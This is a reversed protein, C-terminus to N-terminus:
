EQWGTADAGAARLPQGSTPTTGDVVVRTGISAFDYMWKADAVQMNICGHSGPIGQQVYIPHDGWAYSPVGHLAEGGNYYSIWPTAPQSYGEGNMTQSTYKLYVYFTGVDSLRSGDATPQGSAINFTAVVTTGQYATATQNTLDVHVWKDGNAADFNHPVEVEKEDYPTDKVPVTADTSQNQEIATAIKEPADGVGTVEVGDQGLTKDAGIQVGGESKPTIFIERTVKPVTLAKIVSEQSVYKTIAERDVTLSTAGTELDTSPKLFTAIQETPITVSKDIGNDVTLALGLRANAETVTNQASASDVPNKATELKVEVTASEGPAAIAKAVANKVTATDPEKGDQGESLEFQKSNKNYAITTLKARDAEDVLGDTVFQEATTDTTSATFAVHPQNFINLKAFDNGSKSNLLADVTKDTDVTVGLDSLSAKATKGDASFSVTTNEAQQNVTDTLEDRTQGMVSVNGLHVGPAAKDQFYWRGAFFYTVLAILLVAFISALVILWVKGHSKKQVNQADAPRIHSGAGDAGSASAAAPMPTAPAIPMGDVGVPQLVATEQDDPFQFSTTEDAM